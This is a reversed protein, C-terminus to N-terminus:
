RAAQRKNLFVKWKKAHDVDIRLSVELAQAFRYLFLGCASRGVRDHSDDRGKQSEESGEHSLFQAQGQQDLGPDLTRQVLRTSNPSSTSIFARFLTDMSPNGVPTVPRSITSPSPMGSYERLTM